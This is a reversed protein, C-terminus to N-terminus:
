SLGLVGSGILQALALCFLGGPLCRGIRPGSGFTALGLLVVALILLIISLSM